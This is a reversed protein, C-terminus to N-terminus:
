SYWAAFDDKLVHEWDSSSTHYLASSAAGPNARNHRKTQPVADISASHLLFEKMSEKGFGDAAAFPGTGSITVAPRHMFPHMMSANSINEEPVQVHMPEFQEEGIYSSCNAERGKLINLRAMISSDTDINCRAISTNQINSDPALSGGVNAAMSSYVCKGPFSQSRSIIETTASSKYPMVKAKATISNQMEMRGIHPRSDSKGGAFSTHVVDPDREKDLFTSLSTSDRDKLINYRDMVSAIEVDLNDKASRSISPSQIDSKQLSREGAKFDSVCISSSVNEASGISGDVVRTSSQMEMAVKMRDFRAKYSISCLKAEAELWLNKFLLAQSKLEGDFQFNENLVKGIARSMNDEKSINLSDSSAFLKLSEDKENCHLIHQDGPQGHVSSASKNIKLHPLTLGTDTHFGEGIKDVTDQLALVKEPATNMTEIRKPICDNLNRIVHKLTEYDQERLTFENALCQFRLLGSLSHISMVLSQVDTKPCPSLRGYMLAHEPDDQTSPSHLVNEAAHLAVNCGESADNMNLDCSDQIQAGLEVKGAGVSVHEKENHLVNSESQLVHSTASSSVEPPFHNADANFPSRSASAGKWCPSDVSPNHQDMGDLFSENYRVAQISNNVLSIDDLVKTFTAHSGSSSEFTQKLADNAHSQMTMNEKLSWLSSANFNSCSDDDDKLRNLQNPSLPVFGKGISSPTQLVEEGKLSDLFSCMGDVQITSFNGIHENKLSAARKTSSSIDGATPPRIVVTTTSKPVHINDRTHSSDLPKIWQPNYPKGYNMYGKSAEMFQGSLHLESSTLPMSPYLDQEKVHYSKGTFHRRKMFGDRTESETSNERFTGSEYPKTGCELSHVGGQKIPNKLLNSGEATAIDYCLSGSGGMHKGLEMNDTLGNWVGSSHSYQLGALSQTYDVQSSVCGPVVGSTPLLEPGPENIASLSPTNNSVLQSAHSVPYYPRSGESVYSFDDISTNAGLSQASWYPSSPIASQSISSEQASTTKTSDEHSYLFSSNFKLSSSRDVTFPEALPSLNSSSSSGGTSLVGLGFM